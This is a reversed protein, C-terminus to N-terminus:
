FLGKILMYKKKKTKKTKKIKKTKKTKKIKKTKVKKIKKTKRKTSVKKLLKKSLSKKLFRKKSGGGIEKLNVGKRIAEILVLAEDRTLFGDYFDILKEYDPNQGAALLRIKSASMSEMEGEEGKPKEREIFVCNVKECFKERQAQEKPDEEKGMLFYLKSEILKNLEYREEDSFMEIEIGNMKLFDTKACGLAKFIGSCYKDIVIVENAEEESLIGQNIVMKEVFEKKEEPSLPNEYNKHKVYARTKNKTNTNKNIYNIPNIKQTKSLKEKNHTTTIYARPIAGFELAKEILNRILYIHGPTPPNMRGVLFILPKGGEIQTKTEEFADLVIKKSLHSLTASNNNNNNNSPRRKRKNGSQSNNSM